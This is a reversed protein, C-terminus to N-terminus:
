CPLLFFKVNTKTHKDNFEFIDNKQFLICVAGAIM